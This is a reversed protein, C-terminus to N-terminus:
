MRRKSGRLAFLTAVVGLWLLSPVGGGSSSDGGSGGSAPPPTTSSTTATITLTMPTTAATGMINTGTLTHTGADAASAAAIIHTANTAGAILKTGHYWQYRPNPAGSM